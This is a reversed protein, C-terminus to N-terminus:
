KNSFQNKGKPNWEWGNLKEFRKITEKTFKGARYNRRQRSAWPRLRFNDDDEIPLTGIFNKEKIYHKELQQFGLEFANNEVKWVWGDLNELLEIHEQLMKGSKFKRRQMGVWDGLKFNDEDVFYVSVLATKEKEYYKQLKVFGKNFSKQQQIYNKPQDNLDWTFNISELKKRFDKSIKVNGYRISSVWQGLKTGDDAVYSKPIRSHGYKEIYIKLNYFNTELREETVNWIFNISNLFKLQENSFKDKSRRTVTIVSKLKIGRKTLYNDPVYWHNYKKYFDELEKFNQKRKLEFVSDVELSFGIEKLRKRKENNIRKQREVNKSRLNKAWVGLKFGDVSIYNYPINWHENEKYFLKANMIGLEFHHENTDWIWGDLNGLLNSRKEDLTGLKYNRRQVSVWHGLAFGDQFYEQPVVPTLNEKAYKKLLGFWFYWSESAANITKSIIEIKLNKDVYTPLDIVFNSLKLNSLDTGSGIKIRFNDLEEAMRADHSRMAIITKYITEFGSNNDLYIPIVIYGIKKRDKSARIARGVAQVIDVVSTKPDIFAICDLEPLDIGESLVRANSLIEVNDSKKELKKVLQKRERINHYGSIFNANLKLENLLDSFVSASKLFSHFTIVKKLRYKKLIKKLTFAKAYTSIDITKSDLQIFEKQNLDKNTVGTVIIKYDALLEKEIAEGFTLEYIINGFIENDDMSILDVKREEAAKKIGYSIIRPTATMFLKKSTPFTTKLISGFDENVNGSLRHAEDCITIDFNLKNSKAAKLVTKSSQYTSFIVFEKNSKIFKSIEKQNTSSPFDYDSTFEVEPGKGATEDSCVVFFNTNENESNKLWVGLTQALLSISPALFLVKKSELKKTIWFSTLTKGSGCAMILQGKDHTKFHRHCENIAKNQHPYPKFKVQKRPSKKESECIDIFNSDELDTLLHTQFPIRKENNIIIKANKGIKDTTGILLRHSFLDSNSATIFSDIDPKSISSEPNYAKAQVATIKNDYDICILDIGIDTKFPRDEWDEWLLVEKYIKSFLPHSQLYKKTYVKEFKIGRKYPDKEQKKLYNWVDSM